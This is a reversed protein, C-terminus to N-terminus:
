KAKVLFDTLLAALDGDQYTTIGCSRNGTFYSCKANARWAAAIANVAPYDGTNPHRTPTTATALLLDFNNLEAGDSALRPWQIQLLGEDNIPIGAFGPVGFVSSPSAGERLKKHRKFQELDCRKKWEDQFLEAWVSLLEHRKPMGSDSAHKTTLFGPNICLAVCGWYASLTPGTEPIALSNSEAMWLRQAERIVDAPGSIPHRVARVWATGFSAPPLGPAFVMTYTQRISSKRGYRIPVRVLVGDDETLRERRWKARDADWHLSGIILIGLKWTM